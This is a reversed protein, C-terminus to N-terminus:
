SINRAVEELQTICASWGDYFGLEEHRRREAADKHMVRAVYRTGSGEDAMTLIATFALWPSAPRWGGVLMSTFVIREQPTVDLFCGPNDSEGGDPGSMFTHFGGGPRFDFARVETKWPRPCWWEKLLAPDTWAKWVRARPAAVFRSIELDLKQDGM